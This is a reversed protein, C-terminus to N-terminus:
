SRSRNPTRSGNRLATPSESCASPSLSPISLGAVLAGNIAGVLLGTLLGAVIGAALGWREVAMATTVSSLGVVAGVSLDIQAAGIVFTMAVAMVSITATARLINLLNTQSDFGSGHLTVTFYLFVAVFGIYIVYRRWDFATVAAILKSRAPRARM